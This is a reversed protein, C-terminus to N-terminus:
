VSLEDKSTRPCTGFIPYSRQRYLNRRGFAGLHLFLSPSIFSICISHLLSLIISLGATSLSLYFSDYASTGDLRCHRLKVFGATLGGTGPLLLELCRM